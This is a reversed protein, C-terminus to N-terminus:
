SNTCFVVVCLWVVTSSNLFIISYKSRKVCCSFLLAVGDTEGNYMGVDIGEEFTIGMLAGTIDGTVWPYAFWSPPNDSRIKNTGAIM